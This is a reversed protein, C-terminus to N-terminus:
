LEKGSVGDTALSGAMISGDKEYNYDREQCASRTM